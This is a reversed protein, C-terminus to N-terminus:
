CHFQVKFFNEILKELERMDFLIGFTLDPPMALVVGLQGGAKIGM